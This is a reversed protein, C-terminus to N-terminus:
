DAVKLEIVTIEPKLGIRFPFGVSGFGTNIYLYRNNHEYLGATYKNKLRYLNLNSKGSIGIQMGHTHGSLTLFVYNNIYQIVDVWYDPNHTMCIVPLSEPVNKLSLGIDANSPYHSDKRNYHETGALVITDNDQILYVSENRLLHWNLEEFYNLLENFNETEFIKDKSTKYYYTGYDHNGLVVYIGYSAKFEKLSNILPKLESSKYSVFDGTILILDPNEDNIIKAAKLVMKDNSFYDAHIDSLQIIKYDKFNIPIIESYINIKTTKISKTWTFPATVCFLLIALSIFISIVFPLSLFALRSSMFSRFTNRKRKEKTKLKESQYDSAQAKSNSVHLKSGTILSKLKLIIWLILVLGNFIFHAIMLAFLLTAIILKFYINWDPIPYIIGTIATFLLLIYPLFYIFLSFNSFLSKNIFQYESLDTEIRSDKQRQFKSNGFEIIQTLLVLFILDTIFIFSYFQIGHFNPPLFFKAVNFIITSIVFISM